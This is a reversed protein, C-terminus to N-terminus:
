RMARPCPKRGARFTAVDADTAPKPEIGDDFLVRWTGDDGRHWVSQFGGLHYRPMAKPDASEYLAPGSSYAIDGEGGIAVHTPHWQLKMATGDIISAWHRLIAERGRQGKPNSAHFVAGPHLFRAFAKADHREVTAAFDLERQWVGCEDASPEPPPAATKEQAPLALPLSFLVAALLRSSRSM